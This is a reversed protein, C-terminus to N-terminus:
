IFLEPHTQSLNYFESIDSFTAIIIHKFHRITELMSRNTLKSYNYPLTPDIDCINTYWGDAASTDSVLAYKDENNHLLYIM